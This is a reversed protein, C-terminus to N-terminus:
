IAIDENTCTHKCLQNAPDSGSKELKDALENGPIGLHAQTWIVQIDSRKMKPLNAQKIAHRAPESNERNEYLTDIAAQNDVCTYIKTPTIEIQKLDELGEAIAHPEADFVESQIGIYCSGKGLEAIEGLEIRFTERGSGTHSNLKPRDSYIIITGNLLSALWQNHIQDPNGTKGIHVLFKNMKISGEAREQQDDLHYIATGDVFSEIRRIGPIKDEEPNIPIRHHLVHTKPLFLTQICITQILLRHLYTSAAFTCMNITKNYQYEFSTWYDLTYM